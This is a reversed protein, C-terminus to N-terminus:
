WRFRKQMLKNDGTEDVCFLSKYVHSSIFQYDEESQRKAALNVQQNILNNTSHEMVKSWFAGICFHAIGGSHNQKAPVSGKLNLNIKVSCLLYCDAYYKPDEYIHTLYFHHEVNDLFLSQYMRTHRTGNIKSLMAELYPRIKQFCHEGSLFV